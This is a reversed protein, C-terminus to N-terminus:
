YKGTSVSSYSRALTEVQATGQPMKELKLSILACDIAVKSKNNFQRLLDAASNVSPTCSTM